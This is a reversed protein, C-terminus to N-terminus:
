QLHELAVQARAVVHARFLVASLPAQRGFIRHHRRGVRGPPALEGLLDAEALADAAALASGPQLRSAKCTVDINALARACNDCGRVASGHGEISFDAGVAEGADPLAAEGVGAAVPATEDGRQHFQPRADGSGRVFQVLAAVAAGPLEEGVDVA